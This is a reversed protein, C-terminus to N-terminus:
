NQYNGSNRLSAFKQYAEEYSATGDDTGVHKKERRKQRVINIDNEHSQAESPEKTENLASLDNQQTSSLLSRTSVSNEKLIKVDSVMEIKDIDSKKNDKTVSITVDDDFASIISEPQIETMEQAQTESDM